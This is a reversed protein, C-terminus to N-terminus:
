PLLGYRFICWIARLGDRWGVKKGEDYTRGYYSIGVEYIRPSPRLAAIRAVLEPEIGFRDETLPPLAALVRRTMAKYGCEMDTLNLNTTMNSLLTLLANGQRHWFYLVRAEEGGRFRSGFVVDASGEIIPRLLRPFDRPSYELDADQVVVVDGGAAAYGSRLAAGKGRNRDHRVVRLRRDAAALRDAIAGSGDTSCDDVIVVEPALGLCDAALVRAVVEALTAAENYCPIIVSLSDPM